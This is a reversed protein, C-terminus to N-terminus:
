TEKKVEELVEDENSASMASIASIREQSPASTRRHKQENWADGHLGEALSGDARM